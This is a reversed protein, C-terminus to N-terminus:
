ERNVSIFYKVHAYPWFPEFHRRNIVKGGYSFFHKHDSQSFVFIYSRLAIEISTPNAHELRGFPFAFYECSSGLKTEIITKCDCIQRKLEKINNDNICYHDITHAGILFGRSQLDKIQEWTMPYKGPSKTTNNTFNGIYDRDEKEAADVVGPNIFFMANVGYKELKPAIQTYCDRWGDDFSFALTPRKVAKHQVILQVADEFNVFDCSKHLKELLRAFREGDEDNDHHWDIMHGNLIHVYPSPSAFAGLIDLIINRLFHRIKKYIINM